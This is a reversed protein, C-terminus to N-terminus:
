FIRTCWSGDILGAWRQRDDKTWRITELQRDREWRREDRRSQGWAGALTGIVAIAPAALAVEATTIV